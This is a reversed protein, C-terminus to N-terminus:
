ALLLWAGACMILAGLLRTRISERFARRAIVMTVLVSTMSVPEAVSVEIRTLAILLLLYSWANIFGGAVASLPRNRMISGIRRAQGLLLGAALVYASILYYLVCAYVLPDASAMTAKDVVRGLALFGSATMMYLCAPDQFLAKLSAAFNVRRNLFSAGWVLFTMGALKTWGLGEDLFLAALVALFFVNFNYLPAVLSAEGLSLSRVYCFFACAYIAGALLAPWLFGAPGNLAPLAFPTLGLAGIFFFLFTASFADSGTGTRKVVIREVGLLAVRGFLAAYTWYM